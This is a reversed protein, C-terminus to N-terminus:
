QIAVRRLAFSPYGAGEIPPVAQAPYEPWVRSLPPVRSTKGKTIRIRHIREADPMWTYLFCDICRMEMSEPRIEACEVSNPDSGESKPARFM